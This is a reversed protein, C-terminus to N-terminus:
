IRGDNPCRIPEECEDTDPEDSAAIRRLLETMNM